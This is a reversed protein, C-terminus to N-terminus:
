RDHGDKKERERRGLQQKRGLDPRLLEGEGGRLSSFSCNSVHAGTISESPGDESLGVSSGLEEKGAQQSGALGSSPSETDWGALLATAASWAPGISGM